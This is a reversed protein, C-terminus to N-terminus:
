KIEPALAVRFGIANTRIRRPDRSIRSAVRCGWTSNSWGGGRLIRYSGMTCYPDSIDDIYTNTISGIHSHDLCWEWVNGTMDHFGFENPKKGGVPHSTKGSNEVYWGLIDIKSGGSYTRDGYKGCCRAAYEWQAETPLTYVYGEPLRGAKREIETLKGCFEMAEMWSVGEVPYKGEKKFFAPNGDMLAMWQEQTVEYKGLWYDKTIHVLHLNENEANKSSGMKFSGKEVKVLCLEVGNPLPVVKRRDDVIVEDDDDDSTTESGGDQIVPVQVDPKVKTDSPKPQVNKNSCCNNLVISFIAALAILVLVVIVYVSRVGFIKKEEKATSQKENLDDKM